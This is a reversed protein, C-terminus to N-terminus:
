FVWDSLWLACWCLIRQICSDNIAVELHRNDTNAPVRRWTRWGGTGTLQQWATPTWTERRLPPSATATCPEWWPTQEESWCCAWWNLTVQTHLLFSIFLYFAKKRGPEQRTAAEPQHTRVQLLLWSCRRRRTTRWGTRSPGRWTPKPMWCCSCHLVPAHHSPSFSLPSDKFLDSGPRCLLFM